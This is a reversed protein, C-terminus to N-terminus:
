PTLGTANPNTLMLVQSEVLGSFLFGGKEGPLQLM